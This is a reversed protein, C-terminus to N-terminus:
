SRFRRDPLVRVTHEIRGPNRRIPIREVVIIQCAWPSVINLKIEEAVLFAVDGKIRLKLGIEALVLRREQRCPTPVIQEKQGRTRFCEFAVYRVRVHAKKVGAVERELRM